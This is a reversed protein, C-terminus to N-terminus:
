VVNIIIKGKINGESFYQFAAPVEQLPYTRDIVPILKGEEFLQILYELDKRTPRYGMIGLKKNSFRSLIPWIFMLQLLLGGMSGGIMAFIGHPKLARKYDSVSRHAIVDLIRDYQKDNRTYDEKTYDILYDAGLSRLMDFKEAKDVCTVVAGLLKAYQLGITGVGGGAGNILVEDGQKITGKYRLGQLALLGAQPLSAAQEFSMVQSKQALLKEPVAVYEAFGGFGSGAIDGFVEDGPKFDKVDNGIAEVTGAIDAGLIKHRPKFLGGIIRVLFPKGKLLDWDWSNVSAAYVKVLVENEKPIPKEIEQLQLVAPSGYKTYVVAKM